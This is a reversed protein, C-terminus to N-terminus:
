LEFDTQNSQDESVSSSISSGALLTRFTLCFAITTELLALFRAYTNARSPKEHKFIRCYLFNSVQDYQGLTKPRTLYPQCGAFTRNCNCYYFLFCLSYQNCFSFIFRDHHRQAIPQEPPQLGDGEPM